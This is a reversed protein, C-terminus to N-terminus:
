VIFMFYHYLSVPAPGSDEGGEEEDEVKSNLKEEESM